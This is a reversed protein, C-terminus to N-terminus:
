ESRVLPHKIKYNDNELIIQEGLGKNINIIIPARLNTTIKSPDSNLTVTNVVLVDQEKEIKLNNLINDNLKFEYDQIVEFPSVVVIGIDSNEVSQLLKFMSNEEIDVLIFKKLENFGPLGKEFKIIDEQQYNLLGHYKTHLKM